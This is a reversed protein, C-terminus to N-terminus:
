HDKGIIYNVKKNDIEVVALDNNVYLNQAIEIKQLFLLQM